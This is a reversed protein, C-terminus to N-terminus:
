RVRIDDIEIEEANTASEIVTAQLALDSRGEDRTWLPCWVSWTAPGPRRVQVADCWDYSDNPPMVLTRGYERVVRAIDDPPVRSAAARRVVEAYDGRVLPDMIRQLARRISANM